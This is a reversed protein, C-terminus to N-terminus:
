QRAARACVTSLGSLGVTAPSECRSARARLQPTGRQGFRRAPSGEQGRAARPQGDLFLGVGSAKGSGDYTAAVHNWRGEALVPKTSQVELADDPWRHAVIFVLRGENVALQWGRMAQAADAKAVIVGNLPMDQELPRLYPRLWTGVTMQKGACRAARRRSDGAEHRRGTRMYPWLWTGEGWFAQGSNATFAKVAASPATNAFTVGKQEDFRLRVLLNERLCRSRGRM